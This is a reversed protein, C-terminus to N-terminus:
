TVIGRERGRKMCTMCLEFSDGTAPLFAQDAPVDRECLTWLLRVDAHVDAGEVVHTLGTKDTWRIPRSNITSFVGKEDKPGSIQQQNM